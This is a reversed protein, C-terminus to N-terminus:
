ANVLVRKSGPFNERPYINKYVKADENGIFVALKAMSPDSIFDQPCHGVGIGTRGPMGKIGICLREGFFFRKKFNKDKTIMQWLTIDFYAEGSHLAAEFTYLLKKSIATQCLSAHRFNEMGKFSRSKINYYMTDVEGVADVGKLLDLYTELYNPHYWDDDEIFFIFDGKIHSIAADLNYRQTNIHPKWKKPAEIRIQNLNTETPTAGDDIVLWEIDTRGWVSQRSMYKECLKFAEPRNGTPTVLTVLM